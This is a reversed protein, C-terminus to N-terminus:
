LHRKRYESPSVGTWHRFRRQFARADSFGLKLAIAQLTMDPEAILERALRSRVGDLLQQWNLGAQRLRRDLTSPSINLRAALLERRAEGQELSESLEQRVEALWDRGRQQLSLQRRAQEEAAHRQGMDYLNVPTKLVKRGILLAHHEAGYEVPCGFHAEYAERMRATPCRHRLVVRLPRVSENGLLMRVVKITMCFTSDTVHRDVTRDKHRTHFVARVDESASEVKFFHCNGGVLSQYRLIVGMAEGITPAGMVLNVLVSYSALRVQNGIHFGLLDDGSELLCALLLSEFDQKPIRQLPDTLQDIDLGLRAIISRVSVGMGDAGNIYHSVGLGPIYDSDQETVM